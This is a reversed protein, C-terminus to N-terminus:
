RAAPRSLVALLYQQIAARQAPALDSRAAMEDLRAPWEAPTHATPQPPTHCGGCKGVLLTRGHELTALDISARIADSATAHPPPPACGAVLLAVMVFRSM